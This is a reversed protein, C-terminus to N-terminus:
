HMRPGGGGRGGGNMAQAFMQEFPNAGGGRGRGGM